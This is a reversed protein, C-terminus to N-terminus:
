TSRIKLIKNPFFQIASIAAIDNSSYLGVMYKIELIKKALVTGEEELM